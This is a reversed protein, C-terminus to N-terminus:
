TTAHSSSHAHDFFATAFHFLRHSVLPPFRLLFADLRIPRAILRSIFKIEGIPEEAVRTGACHM